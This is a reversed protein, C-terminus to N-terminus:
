AKICLIDINSKLNLTEYLNEPKIEVSVNANEQQMDDEKSLVM